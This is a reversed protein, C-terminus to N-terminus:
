MTGVSRKLFLVCKGRNKDQNHFCYKTMVPFVYVLTFFFIFTMSSYVGLCATVIQFEARRGEGVLLQVHRQPLFTPTDLM